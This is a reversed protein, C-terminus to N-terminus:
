EESVPTAIIGFLHRQHRLPDSADESGPPGLDGAVLAERREVLVDLELDVTLVDISPERPHRGVELTAPGTTLLVVQQERVHATM